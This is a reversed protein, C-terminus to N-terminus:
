KGINEAIFTDDLKAIAPLWQHVYHDFRFPPKGYLYHNCGKHNNCEWNILFLHPGDTPCDIRGCRTIGNVDINFDGTSIVEQKDADIICFTGDISKLTDNVAIIPMANNEPEGIMVSIPGHTRKMYYFALKKKFYYDVLADSLQPWGDMINWWIVGSTYGKRQRFLEFMFKIGEAQSIQSGIVFDQLNDPLYGFFKKVQIIYYRVRYGDRFFEPVPETSHIRWIMDDPDPITLKNEPIYKELSSVCPAGLCGLETMMKPKLLYSMEDKYYKGHPYYHGEPIFGAIEKYEGQFNSITKIVEDNYYPSSPLLDRAPDYLRVAEPIIERTIRNDAPNRQYHNSINKWVVGSDVENDGSWLALSPHQRLAIIIKEVEDRIIELFKQQQPYIACAMSFDQWVMVGYKDCLDFFLDTEYVNGGWCRIINCDMETVLKFMRPIRQVDRSHFTDAPVWNTGKVYVHVGNVLFNFRGPKDPLNLGTHELKIVRIGLICHYESVVDDEQILDVKVDYLHAKGYGRPWWLKPNQIDFDFSGHVFLAPWDHVFVSDACKGSIRIKYFHVPRNTRYDYQFNMHAVQNNNSLAITSLYVNTIEVSRKELLYVPRWIGASVARPMIDWGYCHAPKRAWMNEQRYGDCNTDACIPYKIVSNIPSKIQVAIHNIENPGNLYRSIDFEHKIMANASNGANKGNIWITAFTDLGEFVLLTQSTNIWNPTAFDREYWWQYLEYKRTKLINDAYFLDKPLIGNDSLDLEVNGPVHAKISSCTMHHFEQEDSPYHNSEDFYSLKWEGGLNIKNM